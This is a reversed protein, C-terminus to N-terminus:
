PQGMLQKLREVKEPPATRYFNRLTNASPGQEAAYNKINFRMESASMKLDTMLTIAEDVKGNQILRKIEPRAKTERFKQQEKERAAEGAVEGKPHGKSFTAGLLPGVAKLTDMQSTKATQSEGSGLKWLSDIWDVPVQSELIHRVVYGANKIDDKMTESHKNYIPENGLGKTNSWLESLPKGWTSLKRHMMDLPSTQWGLFEEGMKGPALRMYIAMPGEHGVKVKNERGPENESTASLAEANKTMNFPNLVDFPNEDAKKLLASFRDKYSKLEEDLTRKGTGTTAQYGAYAGLGAGALAGVPGAVMSGGVTGALAGGLTAATQGTGMTNIASQLLSNAVYFLGIDIMLVATAKRRAVSKIKALEQFGADRAIQAQIDRPLGSYSDKMVGLNGLTFSRSFMVLNAIKRANASMAELPIAGAYRNAWHAAARQATSPQFGKAIMHDRLNTYLGMQLDGIRDWLLTNHWFDGMKDVTRKVADGASKSFLGPVAAAVKATISRGPALSPMEPVSTIDQMYGRHGIPVLGGRIAERMTDPNNKAKNGEFYIRGTVVKGPMAPLARGWEVQNHIMPSMMIVSMTKGKLNMLANYIKGSTGQQLVSRLPGEFDSRVFLPTRHLAGSADTHTNYFAPHDITFWEGEPKKGEAVTDIGAEKGADKIRDILKRGAVAEQLLATAYPMVRINRLVEANEGLAGKAAKETEEVTLYKREIMQATTTRLKGGISDLSRVHKGYNPREYSGDAKKMLVLRTVYSPLGDDGGDYIGLRKAEDFTEDARQQLRKVGEREYRTLSNLGKNTPVGTQLAVSEADAAEWMRKQQEPTYNKTIYDDLKTQTWRAEQIGNAFDKAAARSEITADRAAMPSLKIQMDRTVEGLGMRDILNSIKKAYPGLTDTPVPLAVKGAVAPVSTPSPALPSPKISALETREGAAERAFRGSSLPNRNAMEGRQVSQFIDESTRFGLGRIANGARRLFTQIKSFLGGVDKPLAGRMHQDTWADYAHAQIEERAMGRAQEPTLRLDKAVIDRLRGDERRLVKLERPTALLDQVVHFSEHMIAGTHQTYRPDGLALEIVREAPYYMGHATKEDAFAGGYPQLDDAKLPIRKTFRVKVSHGVISRAIDSLIKELQVRKGEAGRTLSRQEPGRESSLDALRGAEPRESGINASRQLRELERKPLSRLKAALNPIVSRPQRGESLQQVAQDLAKAVQAQKVGQTKLSEALAETEIRAKENQSKGQELEAIARDLLDRRVSSQDSTSDKLLERVQALTEPKAKAIQELISQQAERQVSRAVEAAYAAPVQGRSVLGFGEPSLSALRRVDDVMRAATPAQGLREALGSQSQLMENSGIRSRTGEAINQYAGFQKVWEPSYGEGERLVRAPSMSQSLEQTDLFRRAEAIRDHGNVAFQQGAKDEFVTLPNTREPLKFESGLAPQDYPTKFQFRAPDLKVDAPKISTVPLSQRLEPFLTDTTATSQTQKTEEPFLTDRPAEKTEPIRPVTSEETAARETEREREGALLQDMEQLRREEPRLEEALRQPPQEEGPREIPREGPREEAARLPPRRIAGLAAGAGMGVLIREMEPAYTASPDYFHKAIESGLWAQAEGVTGFVLGAEASSKLRAIAWEQLGPARREIPKMIMGFPLLGLATNVLFGSQAANKIVDPNAGKEKAEKAIKNAEMAGMQGAGLGTLTVAIGPLKAAAGAWGGAVLPALTGLTSAIQSTYTKEEEPSLPFKEKAYDSVAKGARGLMTSEPEDSYLTPIGSLTEGIGKIAGQAASRGILGLTSSSQEVPKDGWNNSPEEVPKDGWDSPSSAVSELPKDGWDVPGGDAFGVDGGDSFGVNRHITSRPLGTLAELERLTKGERRLNTIQAWDPEPKSYHQEVKAVLQEHTLDPHESKLIGYRKNWLRHLYAREEGTTLSSFKEQFINSDKFRGESRDKFSRGRKSPSLDIDDNSRRLEGIRDSTLGLKDALESNNIQMESPLRDHRKIAAVILERKAEVPANAIIKASRAYEANLDIQPTSVGELERQGIKARPNVEGAAELLEARTPPREGRVLDMLASIPGRSFASNVQHKGTRTEIMQRLLKADPSNGLGNNELATLARQDEANLIGPHAGGGFDKRVSAMEQLAEPTNRDANIIEQAKPSLKRFIGSGLSATGPRVGLPGMTLGLIDAMKPMVMGTEPSWPIVNPRRAFRIPNGSQDALEGSDSQYTGEPLEMGLSRELLDPETLQKPPRVVGFGFPNKPLQSVSNYDPQQWNQTPNRYSPMGLPYDYAGSIPQDEDAEDPIQFPNSM